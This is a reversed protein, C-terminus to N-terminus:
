EGKTQDTQLSPEIDRSNEIIRYFESSTAANNSDQPAFLKGRQLVADAAELVTQLKAGEISQRAVWVLDFVAKIHPLRLRAAEKM